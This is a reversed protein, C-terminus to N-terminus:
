VGVQTHISPHLDLNHADMTLKEAWTTCVYLALSRTASPHSDSPGSGALWAASPSLSPAPLGDDKVNINQITFLEITCDVDVIWHISSNSWSAVIITAVLSTTKGDVKNQKDSTCCAHLQLGCVGQGSDQEQMEIADYLVLL